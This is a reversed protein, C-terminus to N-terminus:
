LPLSYEILEVPSLGVRITNMIGEETGIYGM